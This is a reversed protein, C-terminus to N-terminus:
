DVRISACLRFGFGGLHSDPQLYKMSSAKCDSADSGWDGGCYICYGNQEQSTWEWVNGLMDYLGFANPKKQGVTHTPNSFAEGKEAYWAVQDLTTETVDTGDSLRCYDGLTGARCAYGWEAVTPLRFELGSQIVAPNMNLLKIFVQCDNWSVNEVPNDAGLYASPNNAMLAQWQKQTVETKGIQYNKEPIQVMGPLIETRIIESATQELNFAVLRFGLSGLKKSKLEHYRAKCSEASSNWAGGCVLRDLSGKGTQTWEAVNGFMDYLGFANPEKLGVPHTSKSSVDNSFGSNEVLWAVQGLTSKTIEKGNSLRCFDGTAGAHCSYLWEAETPLRFAIKASKVSPLANLTRLFEQAEDWSINEVPSDPNPFRSPNEGLISKWQKQTVETKGMQIKLGPIQVMDLLLASAMRDQEIQIAAVRRRELKIRENEAQVDSDIMWFSEHVETAPHNYESMTVIVGDITKYELWEQQTNGVWGTHKQMGPIHTTVAQCLEKFSNGGKTIRRVGKLSFHISYIPDGELNWEDDKLGYYTVLKTADAMAMGTYFGCFVVNGREKAAAAKDLIIQISDPPSVVNPPESFTPTTKSATEKAVSLDLTRDANQSTTLMSESNRAKTVSKNNKPALVGFFVTLGFVAVYYFVAWIWWRPKPPTTKGTTSSFWTRVGKRNILYLPTGFLCVVVFSSLAPLTRLTLDSVNEGNLSAQILSDSTSGIMLIGGVILEIPLLWNFLTRAWAKGRFLKWAFFVTLFYQPFRGIIPRFADDAMSWQGSMAGVVFRLLAVGLVLAYSGVLIAVAWVIEKPRQARESHKPVSTTPLNTGSSNKVSAVLRDPVFSSGCAPCKLEDTMEFDGELIQKCGPCQITNM